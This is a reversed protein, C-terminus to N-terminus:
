SWQIYCPEYEPEFACLLRGTMEDFSDVNYEPISAHKSCNDSGKLVTLNDQHHLGGQSLPHHHDVHYPEGTHKTMYASWTYYLKILKKDAGGTTAKRKRARRKAEHANCIDRNEKSWQSGRHTYHELNDARHQRSRESLKAKVEPDARYKVYYERQADSTAVKHMCMSCSNNCVDRVAVHGHPCPKLTAYRPCGMSKAEQASRPLLKQEDLTLEYWGRRVGLGRGCADVLAQQEDTMYTAYEVRPVRPTNVYYSCAVCDGGIFRAAVHERKCPQLTAYKPCGIAKAEAKTRPLVKQEDLTLEHWLRAKGGGVTDVLQQQAKNM